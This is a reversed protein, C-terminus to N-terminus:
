KWAIFIVAAHKIKRLGIMRGRTDSEIWHRWRARAEAAGQENLVEASM